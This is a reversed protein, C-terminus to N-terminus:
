HQRHNHGNSLDQLLRSSVYVVPLFDRVFSEPCFRRGIKKMTSLIENFILTYLIQGEQLYQTLPTDSLDYVDFIKCTKNKVFICIFKKRKDV